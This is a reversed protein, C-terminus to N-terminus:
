AFIRSLDHNLSAGSSIFNSFSSLSLRPSFASPQSKLSESQSWKQVSMLPASQAKIKPLLEQGSAIVGLEFHTQLDKVIKSGQDVQDFNQTTFGFCVILLFSLFLSKM